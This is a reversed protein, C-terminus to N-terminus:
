LQLFPCPAPTKSEIPVNHDDAPSWTLQVKNNVALNQDVVQVRPVPGPSGTPWYLHQQKGVGWCIGWRGGPRGWSERYAGVVLLEAQSEVTDLKTSAVCSYNGQDSYDLNYIVM